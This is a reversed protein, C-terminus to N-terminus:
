RGRLRLRRHRRCAIGLMRHSRFPWKRTCPVAVARAGTVAVVAAEAAEASDAEAAEAEELDTAEKAAWDEAALAVEVLVAATGVGSVGAEQAAWGAAGSAAAM